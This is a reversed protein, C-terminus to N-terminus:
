WKTIAAGTTTISYEPSLKGKKKSGVNRNQIIGDDAKDQAVRNFTEKDVRIGWQKVQETKDSEENHILVPIKEGEANVGEVILYYNKAYPNEPPVRWIGSYKGAGQVIRVRYQEKLRNELATLKELIKKARATKGEQLAQKAQTHLANAIELAKADRSQKTISAYHTNLDVPLQAQMIHEPRLWFVYYISGAAVLAGMTWLLPKMWQERRVYKTALWTSFNKQPPVFAFREEELAKVGEELMADTVEIGQSAYIERLKAILKKRRKQANMERDVILDHHRLTDVVDMAVMLDELAVKKEAPM